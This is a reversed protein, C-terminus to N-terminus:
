LPIARVQLGEYGTQLARQASAEALDYERHTMAVKQASTANRIDMAAEPDHQVLEQRSATSSLGKLQAKASQFRSEFMRKSQNVFGKLEHATPATFHL